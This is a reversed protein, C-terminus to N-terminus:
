DNKLSKIIDFNANVKWNEFPHFTFHGNESIKGCVGDSDSLHGSAVKTGIELYVRDGLKNSLLNFQKVSSDLSKFFSLGLAMCKEKDSFKATRAPKQFFLPEFNRVDVIEDFVWRFAETARNEYNEPPCPSAIKGMEHKYKWNM